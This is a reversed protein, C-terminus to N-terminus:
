PKVLGSERIQQALPELVAPDYPPPLYIIALDLGEKGLAAAEDVVKAYDRDVGLRVHSSLTIEKPDRGIDACRAALM